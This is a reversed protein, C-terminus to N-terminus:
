KLKKYIVENNKQDVISLVSAHYKQKSRHFIVCSNKSVFRVGDIITCKLKGTLILQAIYNYSSPIGQKNPLATRATEITILDDSDILNAM